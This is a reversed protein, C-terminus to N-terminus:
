PSRPPTWTIIHHNLQDPLRLSQADQLLNAQLAQRLAPLNPSDQDLWLRHRAANEAADSDPFSWAPSPTREVSVTAGRAQLLEVLHGAAPLKAHPEGHVAPWLQHFLSGPALDFLLAVAERRAARDIADLFPSIPEVDYGVHSILVVDARPPAPHPWRQNFVQINRIEHRVLDKQLLQRMSQSPEICIMGRVRRAIPLAFRGAGAGLDLWVDAPDARRLLADLVPDDARDPDARFRDAIPAYHDGASPSERLREAQERNARVAADWQEALENARWPNARPGPQATM